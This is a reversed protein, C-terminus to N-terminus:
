KPKHNDCVFNENVRQGSEAPQGLLGAMCHAAGQATYSVTACTACRVEPNDHMGFNPRLDSM